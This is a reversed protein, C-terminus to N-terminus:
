WSSSGLVTHTSLVLISLVPVHHHVRGAKTVLDWQCYRIMKIQRASNLYKRDLTAVLYIFSPTIRCAVIVYHSAFYINYTERPLLNSHQPVCRHCCKIYIGTPLPPSTVRTLNWTLSPVYLVPCYWWYWLQQSCCSLRHLIATSVFLLVKNM